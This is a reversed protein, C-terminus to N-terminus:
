KFVQQLSQVNILLRSRWVPTSWNYFVRPSLKTLYRFRSQLSASHSIGLSLQGSFNRETCCWSQFGSCGSPLPRHGPLPAAGCPRSCRHWWWLQWGGTVILYGSWRRWPVAWPSLCSSLSPCSRWDLCLGGVSTPQRPSREVKSM